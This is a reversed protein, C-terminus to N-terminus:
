GSLGPDAKAAGRAWVDGSCTAGGGRGELAGGGRVEGRVKVSMSKIGGAPNADGRDWAGRDLAVDVGALRGALGLPGLPGL